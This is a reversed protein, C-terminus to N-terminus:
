HFSYDKGPKGLLAVVKSVLDQVDSPPVEISVRNGFRYCLSLFFLLTPYSSSFTFPSPLSLNAFRNSFNLAPVYGSVLTELACM